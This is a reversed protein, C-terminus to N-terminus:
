IIKKSLVEHEMLAVAYDGLWRHFRIKSQYEDLDRYRSQSKDSESMGGIFAPLNKDHILTLDSERFDLVLNELSRRPTCTSFWKEYLNILLLAFYKDSLLSLMSKDTELACLRELETSDLNAWLAAVARDSEVFGRKHAAIIEMDSTVARRRVWDQAVRPYSLEEMMM